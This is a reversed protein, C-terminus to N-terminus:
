LSLKKDPNNNGAIKAIDKNELIRASYGHVSVLIMAVGLDHMTCVYKPFFAKLLPYFNGLFRAAYFSNKQGRTPKIYGPRFLYVAKFPLKSLHNETRGKVRAWMLRGSETSDTGSGSVYCFTMGPNLRALTQAATMTLTYTVRTYDTENMGISSVGLCFFCAEYGSLRDSLSSFDYFDNHIIETLKPHVTLCSKRGIVMVSEVLSHNLAEHLVGEGVMGTAGFLIVKMPRGKQM